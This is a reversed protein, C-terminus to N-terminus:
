AKVHNIVKNIENIMSEASKKRNLFTLAEISGQLRFVLTLLANREGQAKKFAVEYKKCIKDIGEVQAKYEEFAKQVALLEKEAKAKYSDLEKAHQEADMSEGVKYFHKNILKAM